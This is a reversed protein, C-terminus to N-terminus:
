LPLLVDDGQAEVVAELLRRDLRRRDVLLVLQRGAEVDHGRRVNLFKAWRIVLCQRPTIEAQPVFEVGSTMLDHGVAVLVGVLCSKWKGLRFVQDEAAQVHEVFSSFPKSRL